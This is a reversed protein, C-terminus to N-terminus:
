VGFGVMNPSGVPFYQGSFRLGGTARDVRFVTVQDSRRNSALLLGGTPDLAVQNPYDGRTWENGVLRLMGDRGIAFTSVSNHLRNGAYLFRGDPGIAMASAFSSGSFGEPLTSVSQLPTVAATQGDYRYVAIQSAEEYIVYLARGNPHFAFHRAGAGASTTPFGANAAPRLKGGALDLEWVFTRDLGLDTSLVFRGAPDTAIMHAHSATHGSQAFSGPPAAVAKTPGLTGQPAVTDTATGLSGDPQIPLVAIHGSDYNAVLLYRGSPHVSAYVPATGGSGVANLRQLAGSVPDVAYASVSGQKQGAFQGIENVAYARDGKPSFCIWSPSPGPFTQLATLRDAQPDVHVLMIGEGHGAGGPM